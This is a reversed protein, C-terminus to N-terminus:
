QPVPLYTLEAVEAHLDLHASKEAERLFIKFRFSVTSVLSVSSAWAL